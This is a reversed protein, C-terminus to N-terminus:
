IPETGRLHSPAKRSHLDEYDRTRAENRIKPLSADFLAVTLNDGNGRGPKEWALVPYLLDLGGVPRSRGCCAASNLLELGCTKQGPSDVEAAVALEHKRKRPPRGNLDRSLISRVLPRCKIGAPGGPSVAEPLRSNVGLDPLLAAMKRNIRANDDVVRRGEAKAGKHPLPEPMPPLEAASAASSNRAKQAQCIQKCRRDNREKEKAAYGTSNYGPPTVTWFSM